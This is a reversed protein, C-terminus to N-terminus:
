RPNKVTPEFGKSKLLKELTSLFKYAIQGSFAAGGLDISVKEHDDADRWHVDVACSWGWGMDGCNGIGRLPPPLTLLIEGLENRSIPKDLNVKASWGM